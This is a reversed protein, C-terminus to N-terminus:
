SPEDPDEPPNAYLFDVHMTLDGTVRVTAGEEIMADAFAVARRVSELPDDPSASDIVLTTRANDARTV